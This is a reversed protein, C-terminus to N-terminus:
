PALRTLQIDRFEVTMAPGRHVQLALIGSLSRSDPDLDDYEVVKVGNLFHEVHTGRAVIKLENWATVDIQQATEGVTGLVAKEKGPRLEVKENRKCCIGRRGEEYLMGVYQQSPHFDAQYGQVVYPGIDTMRTSRYQVGSNNNGTLRLQLSLEFDEVTGGTWILFSNREIPNEDSTRGVIMGGMVKWLDPDGDWGTLDQGNFLSVPESAAAHGLPTLLLTVCVFLVRLVLM